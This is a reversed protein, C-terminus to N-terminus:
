GAEGQDERDLRREFHLERSNSLDGLERVAGTPRFGAKAYFRHGRAFRTDSWLEVLVAGGDRAHALAAALLAAAAGGGRQAPLLYMRHLEFRDPGSRDIAVCGVTRGAAEAIWAAGGRARYFSALAGLEPYEAPAYICGPYEAFVAALVAGVAAGDRDTAPRITVEGDAAM